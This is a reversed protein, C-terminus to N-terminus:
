KADKDDLSALDDFPDALTNLYEAQGDENIETFSYMGGAERQPTYVHYKNQFGYHKAYTHLADLFYPSHTTVVIHVGMNRSMHALIRAYEVQWEPHLHIEPEDLILVTDSTIAGKQILLQLAVLAKVGMSANLSQYPQSEPMDLTRDAMRGDFADSRSVIDVKSVKQIQTLTDVAHRDLIGEEHQFKRMADRAANLPFDRHEYFRFRHLGTNQMDDALRPDEVMIVNPKDFVAGEFSSGGHTDTEWQALLGKDDDLSLVSDATYGKVRSFPDDHFLADLEAQIRNSAHEEATRALEGKVTSRVEDPDRLPIGAADLMETLEHGDDGDNGADLSDLYKGIVTQIIRLRSGRGSFYGQNTNTTLNGKVSLEIQQRMHNVMRRDLDFRGDILAFMAKGITSKGTNNMGAIVSIGDLAVSACAVRGIGQMEFKM